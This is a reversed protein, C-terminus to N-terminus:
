KVGEKNKSHNILKYNKAIWKIKCPNGCFIYNAHDTILNHRVLYLRREFTKGCEDCVLEAYGHVQTYKMLHDVNCFKKNCSTIIEGCYNCIYTQKFHKTPLSEEKLIQRVREGSVGYKNGIQVTTACPNLKRMRVVRERTTKTKM